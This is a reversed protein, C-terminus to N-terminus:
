DEHGHDSMGGNRVTGWSGSEETDASVGWVM